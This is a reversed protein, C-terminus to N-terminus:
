LRVNSPDCTRDVLCKAKALSQKCSNCKFHIFNALSYGIALFVVCVYSSLMKFGLSFSVRFSQFVEALLYILSLEVIQIHHDIVRYSTVQLKRSANFLPQPNVNTTLFM